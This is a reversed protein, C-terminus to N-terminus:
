LLDLLDQKDQRIIETNETDETALFFEDTSIGHKDTTREQESVPM